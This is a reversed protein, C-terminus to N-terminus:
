FLNVTTTSVFMTWGSIWILLIKHMSSNLKKAVNSVFDGLCSQAEAESLLEYPLFPYKFCNYRRNSEVELEIVSGSPNKLKSALALATSSHTDIPFKYCTSDGKLLISQRSRFQTVKTEGM